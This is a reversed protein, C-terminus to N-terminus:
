AARRLKQGVLAAAGQRLLELSEWASDGDLAVQGDVRLEPPVAKGGRVYEARKDLIRRNIIAAAWFADQDPFWHRDVSVQHVARRADYGANRLREDMANFWEGRSDKPIDAASDQTRDHREYVSISAGGGYNGWYGNSYELLASLITEAPDDMGDFAGVMMLRGACSMEHGISGDGRFHRFREVRAQVRDNGYDRSQLLRNTKESRPGPKKKRGM